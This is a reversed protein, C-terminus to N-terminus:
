IFIGCIHRYVAYQYENGSQVAGYSEAPLVNM